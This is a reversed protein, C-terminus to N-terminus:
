NSSECHTQATSIEVIDNEEENENSPIVTSFLRPRLAPPEPNNQPQAQKPNFLTATTIRARPNFKTKKNQKKTSRKKNPKEEEEAVCVTNCCWFSM